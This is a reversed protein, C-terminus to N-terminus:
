QAPCFGPPFSSNKERRGETIRRFAMVKSGEM